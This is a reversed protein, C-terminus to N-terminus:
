VVSKRDKGKFEKVVAQTQSFVVPALALAVMATLVYRKMYIWEQM